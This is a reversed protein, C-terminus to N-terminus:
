RYLANKLPARPTFFDSPGSNVLYIDMWGDNDFDLFACGAGVTEPLHREPSRANDHLWSIGSVGAPVEQFTVRAANQPYGALNSGFSPHAASVLVCSLLLLGSTTILAM